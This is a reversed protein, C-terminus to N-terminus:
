LCQHCRYITHGGGPPLHAQERVQLRGRQGAVPVARHHGRDCLDESDAPMDICAFLQSRGNSFNMTDKYIRLKKLRKYASKALPFASTPAKKPWKSVKRLNTSLELLRCGCLFTM